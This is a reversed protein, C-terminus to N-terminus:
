IKPDFMQVLREDVEGWYRTCACANRCQRREIPIDLGSDQMALRLAGVAMSYIDVDDETKLGPDDLIIKKLYNKFPLEGGCHRLVLMQDFRGKVLNEELDEKGQFWRETDAKGSWKTPNIKTVWIRGTYTKEIVKSDIVFMVPGYVNARSARAHIDVSDAFVDFWIGYRKDIDDSKQATQKIGLREVTGRSMLSKSRLFQCATLVSNAHHIEDIGKAILADYVHKSPTDM